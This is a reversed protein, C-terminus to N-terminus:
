DTDAEKYTAADGLTRYKNFHLQPSDFAAHGNEVNQAVM